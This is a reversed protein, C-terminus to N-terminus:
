RSVKEELRAVRVELETLKGIVQMMDAHFRGDLSSMRSDLRTEIGGIRTDLKAYDNRNMLIGILVTITPVAITLLDHNM